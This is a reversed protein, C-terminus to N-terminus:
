FREILHLADFAADENKLAVMLRYVPADGSNDIMISSTIINDAISHNSPQSNFKLLDDHCMGVLQDPDGGHYRIAQRWVDDLTRRHINVLPRNAVQDYWCQVAWTLPNISHSM